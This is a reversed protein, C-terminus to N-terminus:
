RLLDRLESSTPLNRLKLLAQAELQRARERSVNLDVAVQALTHPENGALGYRLEIVRRERELLYNLSTQLALRGAAM